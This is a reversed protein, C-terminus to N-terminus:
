REHSRTHISRVADIDGEETIAVSTFCEMSRKDRANRSQIQGRHNGAVLPFDSFIKRLNCNDSTMILDKGVVIYFQNNHSSGVVSVVIQRFSRKKGSLMNDNIFRKRRGARLRLFENLKSSLLIAKKRNKM